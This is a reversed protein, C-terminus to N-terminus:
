GEAFANAEPLKKNQFGKIASAIKKDMLDAMAPGLAQLADAGNVIVEHKFSGTHTVEKPFADLSKSLAVANAAFGNLSASLAAMAASADANLGGGGPAAAAAAPAAQVGGAPAFNPQFTPNGRGDVNLTNFGAAGRAAIRDHERRQQLSSIAQQRRAQRNHFKQEPSLQFGAIIGGGADDPIPGNAANVANLLAGNAKASRANVIFEDPAAMIPVTDTGRPKFVRGGAALHPAPPISGEVSAAQQKLKELTELLQALGDVVTDYDVDALAKVSVTLKDFAEKDLALLNQYFGQLGPPLRSEKDTIDKGIAAQGAKEKEIADTLAEFVAKYFEQRSLVQTDKGNKDAFHHNTSKFAEAIAADLTDGPLNIGSVDRFRKTIDASAVATDARTFVGRDNFTGHIPAIGLAGFGKQVGDPRNLDFAGDVNAIGFQRKNFERRQAALGAITVNDSGHKSGGLRLVEEFKKSQGLATGAKVAVTDRQAQIDKLEGTKLNREQQQLLKNFLETLLKNQKDAEDVFTDRMQALLDQELKSTAEIEDIIRQEETTTARGAFKDATAKDFGFIKQLEGSTIDKIAERGTKAQGRRDAPISQDNADNIGFAKSEVDAFQTLFDKISARDRDIFGKLGFNNGGSNRQAAITALAAQRNLIARDKNTSFVLGESAAQVQSNRTRVKTLKDQLFSLKETNNSLIEFAKTLGGLETKLNAIVQQIDRIKRPDKEDQLTKENKGIIDRLDKIEKVVNNPNLGPVLHNIQRGQAANFDELSPLFNPDRAQGVIRTDRFKKFELDSSAERARLDLQSIESLRRANNDFIQVYTEVVKSLTEFSTLLGSKEVLDEAVKQPNIAVDSVVGAVGRDGSAAARVSDALRNLLAEPIHSDKFADKVFDAPDATQDLLGAKSQAAFSTLISPLRSVIQGVSIANAGLKNGSPGLFGAAQETAGVFQDIDGVQGKRGFATKLGPRGVFASSGLSNSLLSVARDFEEGLGNTKDAAEDLALGLRQLSAAESLTAAQVRANAEQGARVGAGSGLTDKIAKLLDEKPTGTFQSLFDVTAEGGAANFEELNKSGAALLANFTFLRGVTSELEAKFHGRDDGTATLSRSRLAQLGSLLPLGATQAARRGAIVDELLGSFQEMKRGFDARVLSEAAESIADRFSTIGGIAAGIVAGIATGAGPLFSGLAAGAGAGVGIGGLVSSTKEFGAHHAIISAGLGGAGLALPATLGLGGGLARLGALRAQRRNAGTFPIPGYQSQFNAGVGPIGVAARNRADVYRGHLFDGVSSAPGGTFNNQLGLFGAGFTNAARALRVAGMTAFVAALKTASDLVRILVTLFSFAGDTLIKFPTSAVISRIFKNFEESVKKARVLISEQRKAADEDLSNTGRKAVELARQILVQQQLLPITKGIQRYGGLEEAIEAFQASNKPLKALAKSLREVAEAPGVFKGSEQLEVGIQRLADITQRRQLRTFITRLGTAISEASERTTARVATFLALFEEISGGAAAFVGGTRRIASVIDESEVAFAKSVANIEGFVRATDGVELGFQQIVAILGETANTMGEFSPALSVKALTVLAKETDRASFGAQAITKSVEILESSGVGFKTALDTITSSLNSTSTVTDGTIQGLVVLSDQFKVAERIGNTFAAFLGVLGGAAVSFAAFRRLALASQEGFHVLGETAQRMNGTNINVRQTVGTRGLAQGMDYLAQEAIQANRALLQLERNITALRVGLRNVSRGAAQDFRLSVSLNINRLRARMAGIAGPAISFSHVTATTRIARVKDKLSAKFPQTLTVGDIAVKAKTKDLAEKLSRRGAATIELRDIKLGKGITDAITTRIKNLEQSTPGQLSLKATLVFPQAM